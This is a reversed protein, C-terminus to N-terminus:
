MRDPVEIGLLYLLTELTKETWGALSLWSARRRQDPENLIHCQDYFRNWRGALVHAYEAVHNPARLDISREVVEPFRLLELMLEREVPL